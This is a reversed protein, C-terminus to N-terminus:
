KSNFEIDCRVGYQSCIKILEQLGASYPSVVVLDDAYLMYNIMHNLLYWKKTAKQSYNARVAQENRKVFRLTYKFRATAVKKHACEHGNRPKGALVWYKFAAKAAAPLEWM